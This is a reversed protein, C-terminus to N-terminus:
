EADGERGAEEIQDRYNELQWLAESAWRTVDAIDLALNEYQRPELAFLPQGDVMVVRWRVPRLSVPEPLPLAQVAPPPPIELPTVIPDPLASSCACLAILVLM